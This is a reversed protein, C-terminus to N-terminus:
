RRAACWCPESRMAQKLPSPQVVVTALVQPTVAPAGWNAPFANKMVTYTGPTNIQVLFDIRQGPSFDISTIPVPAKGYFLIGDRAIMNMTQNVGGSSALALTSLGRPTGTGNVFRWRQIEGQQM